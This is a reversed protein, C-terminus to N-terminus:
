KAEWNNDASLEVMNLEGFKVQGCGRSGDGGLYDNELLRIGDQLLGLLEKKNDGEWINVVMEVAFEAGAPVRESQRPHLATGRVRDITNEYKNETYPM